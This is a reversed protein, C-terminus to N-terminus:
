IEALLNAGAEMWCYSVLCRSTRCYASDLGPNDILKLPTFAIRKNICADCLFQPVDCSSFM